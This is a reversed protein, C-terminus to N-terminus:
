PAAIGALAAPLDGGWVTIGADDRVVAVIRGTLVSVAFGGMVEGCLHPACGTAVVWSGQRAVPEEVGMAFTLRQVGESGAMDRLAAVWGPDALMESPWRGVWNGADEAWVALPVGLALVVVAWGRVM